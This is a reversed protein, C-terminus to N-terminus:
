EDIFAQVAEKVTPDRDIYDLIEKMQESSPDIKEGIYPMKRVLITRGHGTHIHLFQQKFEQDIVDDTALEDILYFHIVASM